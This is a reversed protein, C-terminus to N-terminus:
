LTEWSWKEIIKIGNGRVKSNDKHIYKTIFFSNDLNAQSEVNKKDKNKSLHNKISSNKLLEKVQKVKKVKEKKSIWTNKNYTQIRM